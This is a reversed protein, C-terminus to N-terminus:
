AISHKKQRWSGAGLGVLAILGAGFLIVAAPLPVATVHLVNGAIVKGDSFHLRWIHKTLFSSISPFPSQPDDSTFGGVGKLTLDFLNPAIGSHVGIPTSGTAPVNVTFAQIGNTKIELQNAGAGMTASYTGINVTFATIHFDGVKDLPTPTHLDATDVTLSGSMSSSTSYQSSSLQKPINTVDGTFTYTFSAAMAPTVAISAGLLVSATFALMPFVARIHNM